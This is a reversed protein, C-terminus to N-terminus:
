KTSLSTGALLYPGGNESVYINYLVNTGSNFDDYPNWSLLITASCIDVTNELYMTNHYNVGVPSPNDCADIAVVGYEVSEIDSNNSGATITYCNSTAPISDISDNAGTLPNVMFITYYVIDPDVVPEWCLTVNGATDVSISDVVPAAVLNTVCNAQIKNFGVLLLIILGLKKM